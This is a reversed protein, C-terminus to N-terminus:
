QNADYHGTRYLERKLSIEESGLVQARILSASYHRTSASEELNISSIPLIQESFLEMCSAKHPVSAFDVLYVCRILNM